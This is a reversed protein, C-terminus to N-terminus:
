PIEMRFVPPVDRFMSFKIGCANSIMFIDYLETGEVFFQKSLYPIFFNENNINNFDVGRFILDLALRNDVVDLLLELSTSRFFEWQFGRMLTMLLQIVIELDINVDIRIDGHKLEVKDKWVSTEVIEHLRRIILDSSVSTINEPHFSFVRYLDNLVLNIKEVQELINNTCKRLFEKDDTKSNLLQSYGKITTLPNKLEHSLSRITQELIVAKKENDSIM